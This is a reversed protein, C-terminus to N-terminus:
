AQFPSGLAGEWGSGSAPAEMRSGAFCLYHWRGTAKNHACQSKVCAFPGLPAPCPAAEYLQPPCAARWAGPSRVHARSVYCCVGLELM